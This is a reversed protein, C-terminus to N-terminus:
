GRIDKVQDLKIKFGYFIEKGKTYTRLFYRLTKCLPIKKVNINKYYLRPDGYSDIIEGSDTVVSLHGKSRKFRAHGFHWYRPATSIIYMEGKSPLVDTDIIELDNNLVTALAKWFYPTKAGFEDRLPALNQFLTTDQVDTVGLLCKTIYDPNTDYGLTALINAVATAGCSQFPRIKNKRQSRLKM